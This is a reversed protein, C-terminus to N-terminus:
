VPNSRLQLVNLAWHGHLRYSVADCYSNIKIISSTSDITNRNVVSLHMMDKVNCEHKFYPPMQINFVSWHTSLYFGQSCHVPAQSGMVVREALNNVKRIGKVFLNEVLATKLVIKRIEHMKELESKSRSLKVGMQPLTDKERQKQM